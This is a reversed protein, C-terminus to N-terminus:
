ARRKGGERGLCTLLTRGKRLYENEFHKRLIAHGALWLAIGLYTLKSAFSAFVSQRRDKKLSQWVTKEPRDISM